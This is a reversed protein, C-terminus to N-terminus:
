GPASQWRPCPAPAPAAAPTSRGRGAPAGLGAPLPEAMIRVFEEQHEMILPVLSPDAQYTAHLVQNLSAPNQQVAAKLRFFLPHNQLKALPGTAPAMPPMMPMGRNAQQAPAPAPAPPAQGSAQQMLHPPIGSMLYEVARDPNGFAARLAREVDSRPFGMECMMKITDEIGPGGLGVMGAPPAPAAAAPALDPVPAPAPVPVPPQASAAAPATEGAKAKLPMVVLLGGETVGSDALTVGDQLVKGGYVLKVGGGGFEPRMACVKAKLAEVTEAPDADVDFAEGKLPRAKLLM